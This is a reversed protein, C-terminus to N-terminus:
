LCSFKKRKEINRKKTEVYDESESNEENIKSSKSQPAIKYVHSNRESKSLTKKKKLPEKTTEMYDESDNNEESIKSSQPAIKYVYSNREKKLTGKKTELDEYGKRKKNIDSSQSQPNLREKKL